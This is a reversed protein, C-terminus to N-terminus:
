HSDSGTRSTLQSLEGGASIAYLDTGGSRSSAFALRGDPNWAPDVDGIDNMQHPAKTPSGPVLLNYLDASGATTSVFTLKAASFWSPGTEVDGSFGFSSTPQTAGTADSAALWLKGLVSANSRIFALRTGDPSLAPSTENDTTTTLRTEGVNLAKLSVRYLEANGHRYSTFVVSGEAVTPDRDDGTNDTLRTLDNGDIGMRYIDRNGSVLMDFVVTPVLPASVLLLFDFSGATKPLSWEWRKAASVALYPLAGDYQFYPQSSATFTEVGDPNAVEVSGTGSTLVPGSHFFVRVGSVTAGDSGMRQVLLNQVTLDASFIGAVSDYVVNTSTLKVNVNQGGIVAFRAGGASSSADACSLARSRVSASCRLLALAAGKPPALTPPLGPTLPSSGQDSCAAALVALALVAARPARARLLSMTM